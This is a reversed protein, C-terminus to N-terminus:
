VKWLDGAKSQLKMMSIQNGAKEEEKKLEFMFKAFANTKKKPM